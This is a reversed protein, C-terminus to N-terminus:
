HQFPNCWKLFKVIRYTRSRYIRHLTREKKEVKTKLSHLGYFYTESLQHVLDIPVSTSPQFGEIVREYLNLLQTVVKEPHLKEIRQRAQQEILSKQESSLQLVMKITKLLEQPQDKSCLFGSEGDVILQDFGTERTGIVIKGHAMAEICTNPFNDIRSPLIAAEAHEIIPYLQTHPMAQFHLVRSQVSGAKELLYQVISRGKYDSAKGVFVFYLEPYATLLEQIVEAITVIGKLVGLTGFFLLYRRGALESDFLAPDNEEVDHIFPSEIIEVSLGEHQQITDAIIRSPGFVRDAQHLASMELKNQHEIDEGPPFNYYQMWLPNYSSIRAVSPISEVRYFATAMYSTYQLVDFPVARHLKRIYENLLYSQYLWFVSTPLGPNVVKVRHVEISNYSLIEQRDSAVVVLPGHGMEKLALAVRYLYNALGGDFCSAETVFEPTVFCVRM